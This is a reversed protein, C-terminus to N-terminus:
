AHLDLGRNHAETVAFTLPDWLPSPAQGQTGTLRYSWPELTSNYLADCEPRVQLFVSNYGNTKLNNLITILEAQQVAPTATRNTPWDLNYVSALFVGRLDRKPRAENFEPNQICQAQAFEMISILCITFLFTTFRKM